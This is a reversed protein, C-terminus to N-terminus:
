CANWIKGDKSCSETKIGNLQETKKYGNSRWTVYTYEGNDKNRRTKFWLYVGNIPAMSDFDTDYGDILTVLENKDLTALSDRADRWHPLFSIDSVPPRLMLQTRDVYNSTEHQVFLYRMTTNASFNDLQCDEAKKGQKSILNYLEYKKGKHEFKLQEQLDCLYYGLSARKEPELTLIHTIGNVTVQDRIAVLPNEKVQQSACSFLTLASILGIITNKNIM